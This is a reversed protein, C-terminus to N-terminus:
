EHVTKEERKKRQLTVPCEGILHKGSCLFCDIEFAGTPHDALEVVEPEQEKRRNASGKTKKSIFISTPVGDPGGGTGRAQLKNYNLVSVLVSKPGANARQIMDQGELYALFRNVKKRNWQWRRSLARISTLFQGRKVRLLVGGEHALGDEYRAETFIDLWAEWRSFERPEEWLPHQKFRRYLLLYGRRISM